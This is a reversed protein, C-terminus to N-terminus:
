PDKALGFATAAARDLIKMVKQVELYHNGSGLTGMEDCQRTKARDSIEAPKAGATCWHEEIRDLDM